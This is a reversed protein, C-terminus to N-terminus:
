LHQKLSEINRYRDSLYVDLGHLDYCEAARLVITLDNFRNRNQDIGSINWFQLLPWNLIQNVSVILFGFMVFLAESKWKILFNAGKIAEKM